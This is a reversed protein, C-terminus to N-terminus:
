LIPLAKCPADSLHPLEVAIDARDSQSRSPAMFNAPQRDTQAIKCCSALREHDAKKIAAVPKRSFHNGVGHPKM